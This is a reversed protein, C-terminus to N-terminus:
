NALISPDLTDICLVEETAIAAIFAGGYIVQPSITFLVEGM